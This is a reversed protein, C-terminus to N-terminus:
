TKAHRVQALSAPILIQPERGAVIPEFKDYSPQNFIFAVNPHAVLPSAIDTDSLIVDCNCTGGRSEPGYSPLWFVNRGQHM